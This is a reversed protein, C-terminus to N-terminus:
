KGIEQRASLMAIISKLSPLINTMYDNQRDSDRPGSVLVMASNPGVEAIRATMDCPLLQLDEIVAQINEKGGSFPLAPPYFVNSEIPNLAGTGYDNTITSVLNQMLGVPLTLQIGVVSGGQAVLVASGYGLTKIALLVYPLISAANAVKVFRTEYQLASNPDSHTEAM